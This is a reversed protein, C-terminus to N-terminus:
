LGWDGATVAPGGRPGLASLCYDGPVLFRRAAAVVEDVTVSEIQAVHEEPSTYRGMYIEEGALHHMRNSVSEQGMLLSGRLQAKASEVEDAPAGGAALSELEQRVLSLAERGRDPAVGLHIGLTGCDRHFETSSYISYALGAEERVSQFLRSSMGGGLLANMVALPYRDPHGFSLGRTAVSLYLQQLDERTEIRATPSYAPADGSLPLPSGTPLEFHRTALEVLVEHDVDGAAAVVVNEARYRSRFYDHLMDPTLAEVTELTGLIPRGLGHDGWVQAALMEGVCDDPNDEAACIEERVVSKERAVDAPTFLSHCVIDALVDVAQPLHESLARAYYCVQERGTFADLHGGLSELSAAIARADRRPTGKFLMHEIFHSIGLREAPEDRAGNRLWVGVSVSHRDPIRESLVCLGSPLTTKRDEL